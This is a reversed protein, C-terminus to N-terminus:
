GGIQHALQNIIDVISAPKPSNIFEVNPLTGATQVFVNGYDFFTALFGGSKETVDQIKKLEAETVERYIVASYDIDIVRENTVIGVNFFWSLFNFWIYGFIVALGFINIFIIQMLNFLGPLFFNLVFLMILFIVANIVWPIQTVPHARVVIIVEEDALQGQFRFNPRICFSHLLNHSPKVTDM